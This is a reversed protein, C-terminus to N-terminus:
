RLEVDFVWSDYLENRAYEFPIYCYGKDGWDKGFSNKAIFRETAKDYGVLVMAHGGISHENSHPIRVVPNLSDVYVFGEYVAMGFIVPLDNNLADMMQDINSILRYNKINRKEADTYCEISPKQKFKDIRYPWLSEDCLGYKKVAYIADRLFAGSDVDVTGEVSRTNYYLFLRSLDIFSNPYDIKLLMEYANVLANASCSGLDYQDDIRNDFHRLDISERLPINSLIYPYDRADFDSPKLRFRLKNYHELRLKISVANYDDFHEEVIYHTVKKYV